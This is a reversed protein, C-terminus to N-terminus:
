GQIGRKILNPFLQLIEQKVCEVTGACISVPFGKKQLEYLVQTVQPVPIGIKGLEERHTFITKTDDELVLRGNQLVMIRDAYQAMDEMSHSVFLLTKRKKEQLSLLHEFIEQKGLPDLGAAPEDLILIDPEMALISAIAVRRKQGGSLTFPSVDLLGEAIGVQKLAEYARLDQELKPLQLQKLGFQVEALVTTEFLQYEPYQFVLGVKGNIQMKGDTPKLLGALLQVLTSKGSGTEGIIGIKEGAQVSFSIKEIAQNEYVTGKEYVYSIEELQIQKAQM